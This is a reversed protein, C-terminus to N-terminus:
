DGKSPRGRKGKPKEEFKHQCLPCTIEVNYDVLGEEIKVELQCDPCWLTTPFKKPPEKEPKKKEPLIRYWSFVELNPKVKEDILQKLSDSPSTFGYGYRKDKEAVILKANEANRKFKKNHNQQNCDKEHTVALALLHCQEHVLTGCIDYITRTETLRLNNASMCIEYQCEEEDPTEGNETAPHWVRDVTAYGLINQRTKQITLACEPLQGQFLEQNFIDFWRYLEQTMLAIYNTM